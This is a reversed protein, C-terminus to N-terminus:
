PRLVPCNEQPNSKPVKAGTRSGGRGLEGPDCETLSFLHQVLLFPAQPCAM